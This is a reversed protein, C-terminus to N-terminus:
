ILVDETYFVKPSALLTLVNDTVESFSMAATLGFTIYILSSFTTATWIIKNPNVDDTKEILWSPITISFAYNFLVVGALQAYSNGFLPVSVPFGISDFELYFVSLLSIMAFFSIYQVLITEKLNGRGLPLLLASVIVYGLSLVLSGNSHFPTCEAISSPNITESGNHCSDSSWSIIQVM